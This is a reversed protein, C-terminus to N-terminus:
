QQKPTLVVLPLAETKSAKFKEYAEPNTYEHLCANLDANQQRCKFVVLLGHEHSCDVFAKTKDYCKKLAITNLEQHLKHEAQNSWQLRSGRWEAKQDERSPTAEMSNTMSLEEKTQAAEKPDILPTLRCPTTFCEVGKCHYYLQARAMENMVKKMKVNRFYEFRKLHMDLLANVNDVRRKQDNVLRIRKDREKNGGIYLKEDVDRQLKAQMKIAKDRDDLLRKMPVVGWDQIQTLEVIAQQEPRVIMMEYTETSLTKTAHGMATMTARLAAYSEMIACDEFAKTIKAVHADRQERFVISSQIQEELVKLSREVVQIANWLHKSREDVEDKM